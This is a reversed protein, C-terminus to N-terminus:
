QLTETEQKTEAASAKDSDADQVRRVTAGTMQAHSAQRCPIMIARFLSGLDM